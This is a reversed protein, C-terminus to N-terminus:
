RHAPASRTGGIIDIAHLWTSGDDNKDKSVLYMTSTSADIAPTSPPTSRGPVPLQCSGCPRAKPMPMSPM